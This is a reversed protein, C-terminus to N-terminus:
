PKDWDEPRAPFRGEAVGADPQRRQVRGYVLRSRAWSRLLYSGILSAALAAFMLAEWRVQHQTLVLALTAVVGAVLVTLAARLLAQVRM